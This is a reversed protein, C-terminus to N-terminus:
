ATARRSATTVSGTVREIIQVLGDLPESKMVYEDVLWLIREPLESYASLLVIPEHPFRRKINLAVAEADMGESKYELLVAAIARNGLMSIATPANNATLVSYGLKELNAKRIALLASRDDICLLVPPMAQERSKDEGYAVAEHWMVVFETHRKKGNRIGTEPIM